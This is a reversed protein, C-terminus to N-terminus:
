PAGPTRVALDADVMLRTLEQFGVRPKWGLVRQAKSSDGLLLDVETPRLYRPDIVVYKRWDLGVYGFAEDLFERVTHTEGTAVVYDDPAEQQLMRWMAEVYDRAYGWDRKADLNDLRRERTLGHKTAAEGMTIKRMLYIYCR